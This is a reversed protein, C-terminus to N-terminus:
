TRTRLKELPQQKGNKYAVHMQNAAVRLTLMRASECAASRTKAAAAAM